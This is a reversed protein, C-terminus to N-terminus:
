ALEAYAATNFAETLWGRHEKIRRSTVFRVEPLPNLREVAFM